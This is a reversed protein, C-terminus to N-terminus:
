YKQKIVKLYHVQLDNIKLAIFYYGNPLNNDPEWIVEYKEPSLQQRDLQAVVKGEINYVFINVKAEQFVGYKIEVRTLHILALV